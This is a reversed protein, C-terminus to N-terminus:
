DTSLVNKVRATQLDLAKLPFQGIMKEAMLRQVIDMNNPHVEYRENRM